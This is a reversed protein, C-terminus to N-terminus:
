VRGGPRKVRSGIARTRKWYRFVEKRSHVTEAREFEEYGGVLSLAWRRDGRCVGFGPNPYFRIYSDGSQWAYVRHQLWGYLMLVLFVLLPAAIVGVLFSLIPSM